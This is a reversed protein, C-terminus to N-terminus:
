GAIVAIAGLSVLTSAVCLLRGLWGLDRRTGDHEPDPVDIAAGAAAVDIAPMAARREPSAGAFLSGAPLHPALMM